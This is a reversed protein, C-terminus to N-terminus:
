IGLVECLVAFFADSIVIAVIGAVVASTVAVGVASASRGCRMGYLCGSIAILVGFICSKFVGLVVDQLRVATLLQQFYRELSIDLTLSSILAGGSMGLVDAYICLLPMMLVLAVVRPVVLYEMPSFGFTKLADIEENVQMTGLQAAFAAGTRGAMIIAAMIAGMERVMAIGVLNAVYIEAGFQRLQQAGIFCLIVGVLVSILTVIPLASPGSEDLTIWIDSVPVKAKGRCARGLALLLEGVFDCWALFADRLAIVNKGVTVLFADRSSVRRAGAREPVKSALVLLGEGVAPIGGRIVEHGQARLITELKFIWSLVGSDWTTVASGDIRVGAKYSGLVKLAVSPALAGEPAADASVLKAVALVGPSPASVTVFFSMRLPAYPM